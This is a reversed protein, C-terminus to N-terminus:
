DQYRLDSKRSFGWAFIGAIAMVMLWEPLHLGPLVVRLLLRVGVMAVTIYGAEELRPYERLWRLFLETLFRLAIMGLTGGTVILWTQDSVAIATTVSDLSFALDTLAIVPIAQWLSAFAFSHPNSDETDAATYYRWVLWLLYLAGLLEFQWFQQVWAATVILTMRLVYAGLLGINLARRQVQPNELGQAISALAVANDASLVAELIVLILLLFPTHLYEMLSSQALENLM